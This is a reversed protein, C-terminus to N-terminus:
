MWFGKKMNPYIARNKSTSLVSTTATKAPLMHEERIQEVEENLEQLYNNINNM